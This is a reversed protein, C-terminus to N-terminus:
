GPANRTSNATTRDTSDRSSSYGGCRRRLQLLKLVMNTEPARGGSTGCGGVGAGGGEKCGAGGVRDSPHESQQTVFPVEVDHPLRQEACGPVALEHRM